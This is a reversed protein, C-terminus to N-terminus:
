LQSIRTVFQMYLSTPLAIATFQRCAVILVFSELPFSSVYVYVVIFNQRSLIETDFNLVLMWGHRHSDKFSSRHDKCPFLLLLHFQFFISSSTSTIFGKDYIVYVIINHGCYNCHVIVFNYSSHFNSFTALTFIIFLM